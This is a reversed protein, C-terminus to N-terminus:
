REITAIQSEILERDEPDDVASLTEEARVIWADREESHGAVAHARALGECTSAVLWTPVDSSVARDYAAAAFELALGAHGLLSAVHAIQWDGVALQEPGGIDDWLQRSACALTLMRRDQEPTRDPAEILAWTANYMGVAQDRQDSM